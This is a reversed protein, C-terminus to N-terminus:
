LLLKAVRFADRVLSNRAFGILVGALFAAILGPPQTALTGVQEKLETKEIALLQKRILAQEQLLQAYASHKEFLLKSLMM